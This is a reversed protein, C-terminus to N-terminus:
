RLSALDVILMGILNSMVEGQGFDGESLENRVLVAM